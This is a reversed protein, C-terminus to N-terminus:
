PPYARLMIQDLIDVFVYVKNKPPEEIRYGKLQPHTNSWSSEIQRVRPYRQNTSPYPHPNTLYLLPHQPVIRLSIGKKLTQRQEDTQTFDQTKHLSLVISLIEVDELRRERLM